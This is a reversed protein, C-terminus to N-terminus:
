ETAASPLSWNSEELTLETKRKEHRTTLHDSNPREPQHLWEKGQGNVHESGCGRLSWRSLQRPQKPWFKWKSGRSRLLEPKQLVLQQGGMPSRESIQRQLCLVRPAVAAKRRLRIGEPRRQWRDRALRAIAGGACPSCSDRAQVMRSADAEFASIREPLRLAKPDLTIAFPTSRISAFTSRHSASRSSRWSPGHRQEPFHPERLHNRRAHACSGLDLLLFHPSSLLWVPIM